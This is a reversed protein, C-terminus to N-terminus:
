RELTGPPATTRARAAVWALAVTPLLFIGVSALGLLAGASLLSAAAIATRRGPALVPVFAVLAPIVLASLVGAGESAVLSESGSSCGSEGFPSEVCSRTTIVPAFALVAGTAL